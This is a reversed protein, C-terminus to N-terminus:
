KCVIMKGSARLEGAQLLFYYVGPPLGEANWFVQQKGSLQKQQIVKIREGLHNCIIIQVTVPQQLEYAITTSTTFPNPYCLIEPESSRVKSEEFGVVFFEDAGIDVEGYSPRPEDQYDTVPCAYYGGDCMMTDVGANFCPSSDDIRFLTDDIFEPYENINGEGTWSGEINNPDIDSYAIVVSDISGINNIDNATPASNEYFICNFFIPLNIECNLHATGGRYDASNNVITNNVFVPRTNETVSEPGFSSLDSEPHDMGIAGGSYGKNGDFLNNSVEMNNCSRSYFGGGFRGANSRFQNGSILIEEILGDLIALGGGVNGSLNKPGINYSIENNEVYVPGDPFACLIGVGFYISNPNVTNHSIVNGSIQASPTNRALLGGGNTMNGTLTNHAINNSHIFCQSSIIAVGGGLANGAAIVSNYSISNNILYVSDPVGYINEAEVGGGDANALECECHNNTIINNKIMANCAAYIGGGFASLNTANCENGRITNNEIVVWMEGADYFCGIGGGCAINSYTVENNIIKNNIIKAGAYFCIVGGGIRADITSLYMGTGGTITFGCLISSTDEGTLFTVASAFDPNEPQSGDIITSDIYVSDPDILYHSAVTIAKGNFNINEFWTGQAVLVTDGNAAADIGAQITPQDGPVYIVQCFLNITGVMMIATVLIKTKM